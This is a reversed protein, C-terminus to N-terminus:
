LLNMPFMFLKPFSIFVIFLWVLNKGLKFSLLYGPLSTVHHGCDRCHSLLINGPKLDRHMFGKRNMADMASGIQILFHRITDEPLTRKAQLYESLDGGNCYEMVLYVGSSSISHDYLRVINDHNLDKLVCIEKSLLTKSKLVNQDKLMIKIAVPEEPNNKVRGKYVIAFAGNGLVDAPNYEYAGLSIM